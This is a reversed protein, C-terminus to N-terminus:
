QDRPKFRETLQTGFRMIYGTIVFLLFCLLINVISPLFVDLDFWPLANEKGRTRGLVEREAEDWASADSLPLARMEKEKWPLPWSDAYHYEVWGTLRDLRVEYYDGKYKYRCWGPWVFLGILIILLVARLKFRDTRSM